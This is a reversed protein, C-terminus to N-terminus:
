KPPSPREWTREIFRAIASWYLEGGSDTLDNHGAGELEVFDVPVKFFTAQRRGFRIPIIADASGHLALVPCSVEPAWERAPFPHRAILGVPLWFYHSQGVEALSPYPAQLILGAVEKRLSAVHTAVGSGMSEGFLVLPLGPKLAKLHDVLALANRLFADQSSRGETDGAYGPYEALVFSVPLGRLRAAFFARDCASGGNGHFYVLWARPARAEFLHYRLREDGETVERAEGGLPRLAPCEAFPRPDPFFILRDQFVYVLAALALYAAAVWAAFRLWDM